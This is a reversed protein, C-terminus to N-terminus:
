ENNEISLKEKITAFILSAAEEITHKENVVVDPKSPWEDPNFMYDKLLTVPDNQRMEKFTAADLSAPKPASKDVNLFENLNIVGKNRSLVGLCYNSGTRQESFLIFKQM